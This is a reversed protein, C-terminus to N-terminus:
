LVITKVLSENDIMLRIFFQGQMTSSYQSLPYMYNGPQLTKQELRVIEKGNIDCVSLTVPATKELTFYVATQENAPTPYVNFTAANVYDEISASLSFINIDDIYVNNGGNSVFEFMLRANAYASLQSSPIAIEALAWDTVSAPEYTTQSPATTAMTEGSFSLKSLWTEGCNTSLYVNLKDYVTDAATLMGAPVYKGAYAYRFTIKAHSGSPLSSLNYAPTIMRDFSGANNNEFNNLWMSKTGSYASTLHLSWENGADSSIMLDSSPNITEFSETFPADSVQAPDFVTIYTTKTLSDSGAANFVKLTVEYQGPTQYTVVPHQDISTAPTGGNFTWLWSNASGNFSVDTFSVQNGSCLLTPSAFFDAIPSCMQTTTDLVGTALLNEVSWLTRRDNMLTTNIRDLQGNSFINNCYGFQYDMYNEIMDKEDPDDQDCTNRSGPTFCNISTNQTAVDVPPTDDVEDGNPAMWDPCGSSAPLIGLMLNQFPHYLNFYHGTEHTFTRNLMNLPMGAMMEATGIAGLGDHRILVGDMLTDGGTLAQTLANSPPFPSMGGIFAGDPLSMGEPYIFNVAFINMYHAPSWAYQSMTSFYAYNTQPDYHRVIGSTCNGDPDIRALRFEIQCDAARSQFPPYTDATDANLKNYDINLREIADYIQADSINEAGYTHIIHFVVPIIRKGEVLTDTKMQNRLERLQDEYMMYNIILSQDKAVAKQLVIDDAEYLFPVQAKAPLLLLFLLGTMFFTRKM